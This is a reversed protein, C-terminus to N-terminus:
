KKSPPRLPVIKKGDACPSLIKEEEKAPFFSRKWGQKERLFNRKKNSIVREKKNKVHIAM